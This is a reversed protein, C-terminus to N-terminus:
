ERDMPRANNTPGLNFNRPAQNDQNGEEEFTAYEVGQDVPMSPTFSRNRFNAEDFYSIVPDEPHGSQSNRGPKLDLGLKDGAFHTGEYITGSQFPGAGLLWTDKSKSRALSMGSQWVPQRTERHYAFVAIKAAGQQSNRKALSVEPLAPMLPASTLMSAASTLNQEQQSLGLTFENGDTGLAGVRAEVVFEADDMEDRLRCNAAILQQRLSSIIYDANVFGVGKISRVYDTNLYVTEGSLARFDIRAIAQDVADSVLLQETAKRTTTTGCGSCVALWACVLIFWHNHLFVQPM